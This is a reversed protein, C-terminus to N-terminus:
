VCHLSSTNRNNHKLLFQTFPIDAFQTSKRHTQTNKVSHHEIKLVIFSRCYLRCAGFLDIKLVVARNEAWELKGMAFWVPRISGLRHVVFRDTADDFCAIYITRKLHAFVDLYHVTNYARQLFSSVNNRRSLTTRLCSPLWCGFFVLISETRFRHSETNYHRIDSIYYTSLWLRSNRHKRLNM